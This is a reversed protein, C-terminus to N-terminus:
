TAGRSRRPDRMLHYIERALYRKICILDEGHCALDDRHVTVGPNGPDLHAIAVRADLVVAVQLHHAKVPAAATDGELLPREPGLAGLTAPM